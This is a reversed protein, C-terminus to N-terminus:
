ELRKPAPGGLIRRYLAVYEDVMRGKDFRHEVSARVAEPGLRGVTTVADAAEAISDVLRGNVGEAIIEPMSGRRSAIVPTGCAMAEVVSFGFPEDFSVLHILARAGGLLGAKGEPGVAGIFRVRDGDIHPEVARTFYAQDQIIGAIVLPLGARRAISIAEETGKEPHIRGFFLLYDRPGTGIAFAGMDIGHHITAAYHLSPHRDADSIAVYHSTEDYKRYVPVIRESSFGHITTVVPTEVLRSFSLPLFDFSNHIVDFESAREFVASIHLCEWAKVDIEPDESYGRPASGVLRAKTISDATAFLTVDLGREVLGETLLSAFLEWPGYHRPPVRWSIPALVAVRVAEPGDLSDSRM